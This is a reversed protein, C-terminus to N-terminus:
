ELSLWEPPTAEKHPLHLIMEVQTGVNKESLIVLKDVFRKMNPIGMGSGFGRERVYDPATSFGEEMAKDLDEIGIGNDVVRVMIHDDRLFCFIDGSGHSHIVVNTEAEYAAVGARRTVDAPYRRDVLFQKMLASGVGASDIDNTDITYHFEADDTRLREGTIRSFGDDLTSSRKRDHLYILGFKELLSDLIDTRSIIGQLVGDGDVVPFRGYGYTDFLKVIDGLPADVRVSVVDRSMLNRIPEEVRGLELANILDAISLIGLLRSGEDVVPIGSIRKVRMMEKAQSVKREPPLSTVPTAMVDAARIDAFLRAVEALISSDGM